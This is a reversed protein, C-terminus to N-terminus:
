NEEDTYGLAALLMDAKSVALTARPGYAGEPDSKLEECYFSYAMNIRIRELESLESEQNATIKFDNM